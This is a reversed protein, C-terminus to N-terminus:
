NLKILSAMETILGGATIDINGGASESINVGAIVTANNSATMSYDTCDISVKGEPASISISGHDSRCRIHDEMDNKTSSVVEIFNKKKHDYIQIKEADKSHDLVIMHGDRELPEGHEEGDKVKTQIIIREIENEHDDHFTIM